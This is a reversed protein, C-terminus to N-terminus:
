EISSRIAHLTVHSSRVVKCLSDGIFCPSACLSKLFLFIVNSCKGQCLNQGFCEKKCESMRLAWLDHDASRIVFPSHSVVYYTKVFCVNYIYIYIYICIYLCLGNMGQTRVPISRLTCKSFHIHIVCSPAKLIWQFSNVGLWHTPKQRQFLM